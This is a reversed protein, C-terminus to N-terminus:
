FKELKALRNLHCFTFWYLKKGNIFAPKALYIIVRSLYKFNQLAVALESVKYPMIERLWVM